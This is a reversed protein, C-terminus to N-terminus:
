ARRCRRDSRRLAGRRPFCLRFVKLAVPIQTANTQLPVFLTIGLEARLVARAFYRGYLGSYARRIEASEGLHGRWQLITTELGSLHTEFLRLWALALLGGQITEEAAALAAWWLNFPKCDVVDLGASPDVRRMLIWRYSM